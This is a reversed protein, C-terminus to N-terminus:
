TVDMEGARSESVLAVDRHLARARQSDQYVQPTVRSMEVLTPGSGITMRPTVHTAGIFIRFYIPKM